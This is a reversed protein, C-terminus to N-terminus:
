QDPSLQLSSAIDDPPNGPRGPSSQVLVLESSPHPEASLEEPLAPAAPVAPVDSTGLAVVVAPLVRCDAVAATAGAEWAVEETGVVGAGAGDGAEDDFRVEVTGAGVEVAAGLGVRVLSWGVGLGLGVEVFFGVGLGVGEGVDLSPPQM